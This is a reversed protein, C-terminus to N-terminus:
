LFWRQRLSGAAAPKKIKECLSIAPGPDPLSDVQNIFYIDALDERNLVRAIHEAELPLEPDTEALSCFLAPCHCVDSAKRGIASAGAVCITLATQPWIVPEFSRHAKAPLGKSGDAEAIVFDAHVLLLSPDIDPAGLKGTEQSLSGICIARSERFLAEMREPVASSSPLAATDLLPMGAFPYMHTSTTLLIRGSLTESLYRLFSTKGGSGIMSILGRPLQLQEFPLFM